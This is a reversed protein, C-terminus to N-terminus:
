VCDSLNMLVTAKARHLSISPSMLRKLPKGRNNLFQRFLERLRLADKWRALPGTNILTGTKGLKGYRRMGYHVHNARVVQMSGFAGSFVPASWFSRGIHLPM